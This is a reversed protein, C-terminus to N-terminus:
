DVISINKPNYVTDEYVDKYDRYRQQLKRSLQSSTFQKSTDIYKLADEQAINITKDVICQGDPLIRVHGIDAETPEGNPFTMPKLEILHKIKWLHDNVDSTNKFVHMEGVVPNKGFLLEVSKRTWKPDVPEKYLWALWLKSTPGPMPDLFTSPTADNEEYVYEKVGENRRPLYRHWRNHPRFVYRNRIVKAM